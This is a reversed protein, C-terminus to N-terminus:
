RSWDSCKRRTGYVMNGACSHVLQRCPPSNSLIFPLVGQSLYEDSANECWNDSRIRDGLGDAQDHVTPLFGLCVLLHCPGSHCLNALILWTILLGRDVKNM